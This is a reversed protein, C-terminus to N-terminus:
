LGEEREKMMENIKKEKAFIYILIKYHRVFSRSTTTILSASASASLPACASTTLSTAGDTHVCSGLKMKKGKMELFGSKIISVGWKDYFESVLGIKVHSLPCCTGESGKGLYSPTCPFM